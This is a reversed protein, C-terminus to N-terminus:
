RMLASIAETTTSTPAAFRPPMSALGKCPRPSPLANGWRSRISPILHGSTDILHLNQLTAMPLSRYLAATLTNTATDISHYDYNNIAANTAGTHDVGISSTIIESLPDVVM